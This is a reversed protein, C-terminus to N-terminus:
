FPLDQRAAWVQYASRQEAPVLSADGTSLADRWRDLDERSDPHNPGVVEVPAVRLCRLFFKSSGTSAVLERRAAFAETATAFEGLLSYGSETKTCVVYKFPGTVNNDRVWELSWLKSDRLSATFLAKEFLPSVASHLPSVTV